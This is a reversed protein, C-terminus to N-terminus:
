DHCITFQVVDTRKSEFGAICYALYFQWKRIFEIKYGMKIIEAEKKNFNILWQSLTKSYSKGFRLENIVKLNNNRAIKYIIEKTPLFGGPFIYERIFDSTKSYKDYFENDIVITQIVARGNKDLCEKIKTFYQEWYEKGVAEFMEISVINGFKGYEDRYDQLAIYSENNKNIIKDAHKKQESSLTLGKVKYGNKIAKQMFGGWGCGIELINKNKPNLQDLIKQYKNNQASSLSEKDKLYIASSYTMSKDLWLSYFDNGLDYHYQINKRSGKLNNRRFINKIIFFLNAIKNGYFIKELEKHNISLFLLLNEIDSSTFLNGIYAEGLGIDGRSMIMNFIYNSKIDIDAKIKSNKSGIEIVDNDPTKITLHGNQINKLKKIINNKM